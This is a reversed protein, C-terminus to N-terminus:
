NKRVPSVRVLRCVVALGDDTGTWHQAVAEPGAARLATRLAWGTIVVNDVLGVVPVFDPILNIPQVNYVLALGIRIRVSSPLTPDRVLNRLLRVIDPILRLIGGEVGGPPRARAVALALLAWGVVVVSVLAVVIRLLM